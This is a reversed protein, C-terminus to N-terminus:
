EGSDDGDGDTLGGEEEEDEDYYDDYDEPEEVKALGVKERTENITELLFDIRDDLDFTELAILESLVDMLM